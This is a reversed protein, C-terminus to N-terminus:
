LFLKWSTESPAKRIDLHQLSFSTRPQRSGLEPVAGSASSRGPAPARLPPSGERRFCKATPHQITESVERISLKKEKFM